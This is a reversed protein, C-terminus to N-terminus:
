VLLKELDVTEEDRLKLLADQIRGAGLDNVGHYQALIDYQKRDSHSMIKTLQQKLGDLTNDFDLMLHGGSKVIAIYKGTSPDSYPTNVKFVNTLPDSSMDIKNSYPNM